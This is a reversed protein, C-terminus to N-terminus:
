PMLEHKKLDYKEAYEAVAAAYKMDNYVAYLQDLGLGLDDITCGYHRVMEEEFNSIWLLRRLAADWTEQTLFVTKETEGIFEMIAPVLEMDFCPVVDWEDTTAIRTYADSLKKACDTIIDYRLQSIGVSEQHETFLPINENDLAEMICVAAEVDDYTYTNLSTM